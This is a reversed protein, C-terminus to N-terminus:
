VGVFEEESINIIVQVWRNIINVWGKFKAMKAPANFVSVSIIIEGEM